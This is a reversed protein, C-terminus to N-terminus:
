GFFRDINSFLISLINKKNNKQKNSQIYETGEEEPDRLYKMIEHEGREDVFDIKVVGTAERM